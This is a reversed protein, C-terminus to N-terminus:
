FAARRTAVAEIDEDPRAGGLQVGVATFGRDSAIRVLKGLDNAVKRLGEKGVFASLAKM